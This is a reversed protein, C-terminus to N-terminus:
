KKGRLIRTLTNYVFTKGTGDPGDIFFAKNKITPDEVAKLITEVAVSQHTNLKSKLENGIAQEELINITETNIFLSYDPINKDVLYYQCSKGHKKFFEDFEILCKNTATKILDNKYIFDEIFYANFKEYLALPNSPNSFVCIICFLNRLAKPM